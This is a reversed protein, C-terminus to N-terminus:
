EVSVLWEDRWKRVIKWIDRIKYFQKWKNNGFLGYSIFNENTDNNHFRFM